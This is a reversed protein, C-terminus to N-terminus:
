EDCADTFDRGWFGCNRARALAEDEARRAEQQALSRWTETAVLTQDNGQSLRLLEIENGTQQVALAGPATTNQRSLEAAAANSRAVRAEIAKTTAAMEELRALQRDHQLQKYARAADHTTATDPADYITAFSGEMRSLEAMMARVDGLVGAAQSGQMKELNALAAKTLALLETLQTMQAPLTARPEGGGFIGGIAGLPGGGTPASLMQAGADASSLLVTGAMLLPFIRKRMSKLEKM